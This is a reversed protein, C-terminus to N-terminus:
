PPTSDLGVSRGWQTRRRILLGASIAALAIAALIIVYRSAGAVQHWRTGLFYGFYVLLGNWLLCGASTFAIFKALPMKAAGAPFSIVTRFGPIVRSAFVMMAGHRNFWRAAVELQNTSSLVRGLLRKQSVFTGGKLGIYYDILSGLIGAFTAIVVVVWFNLQGASVLYGAFPLVVESPIPLSSSELLMLGFIGPYGWNQVTATVGQTISVILMVAPENSLPTGEVVVDELIEFVIYVLIAVAIAIVILQPNRRLKQFKTRPTLNATEFIHQVSM